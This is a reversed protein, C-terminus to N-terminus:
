RSRRLQQRMSQKIMKRIMHVTEPSVKSDSLNVSMAGIWREESPLRQYGLQQDLRNVLDPMHGAGYLIAVSKVQPETEILTKLDDIVVQNRDNIIVEGFGAGLQALGQDMVSPDGLVEIMVVKFTDTVAGETFTDAMKILGLLIKILTAPLSTGDLTDGMLSFDLGKATLRRNVEDMAMDSCRWNEKEYPLSTLQFQLGLADALQRQLGDDASLALPQPAGEEFVDLDADAGEGGDKGDAGFSRLRYGITNGGQNNIPEYSLTRSWADIMAVKLLKLMRADREAAFKEFSEVDKPYTSYKIRYSEIVSGVFGLAARTSAVREEHTEGRAGGTGEPKVSEYLVVTYEDLLKAIAEYFSVDAIHAVGILGVKPGTGDARIFDHSAIELSISKGKDEVVRLFPQPAAAPAAPKEDACSSIVAGGYAFIIAATVVTARLRYGIRMFMRENIIMM